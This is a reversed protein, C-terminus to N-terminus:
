PAIAKFSDRGALREVLNKLSPHGKRWDLQPLNSDLYSLACGCAIDALTLDDGFCFARDAIDSEMTALGADIKRQQKAQFEAGKREGEPLQNDHHIAVTADMIGSALAEWRKVEIRAEFGDPILRPAVQLGDLYEVIVASDYLPRGDDRILTPIKALPNAEAVEPASARVEVLDLGIGKEIAFARVKRFYPSRNSGLLKM